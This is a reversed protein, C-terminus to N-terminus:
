KCKCYSDVWSEVWFSEVWLVWFRLSLCFFCWWPSFLILGSLKDLIGRPHFLCVGYEFLSFCSYAVIVLFFEWFLQILGEEIIEGEWLESFSLLGVKMDLAEKSLRDASMNHERYVHRFGLSLFAQKISLVWLVWVCYGCSFVWLVSTYLWPPSVVMKGVLRLTFNKDERELYLGYTNQVIIRLKIMM